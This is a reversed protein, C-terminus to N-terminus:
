KLGKMEYIRNMNRVSGYFQSQKKKDIENCDAM